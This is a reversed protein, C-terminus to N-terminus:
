VKVPAAAFVANTGKTASNACALVAALAAASPNSVPKVSVSKVLADQFVNVSATAASLDAM